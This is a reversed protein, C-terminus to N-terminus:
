NDIIIEISSENFDDDDFNNEEEDDLAKKL